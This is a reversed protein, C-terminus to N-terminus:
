MVCATRVGYSAAIGLGATTAETIGAILLTASTFYINYDKNLLLQQMWVILKM